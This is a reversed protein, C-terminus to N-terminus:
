KNHTLYITQDSLQTSDAAINSRLKKRQTPSQIGPSQWTDVEVPKFNELQQDPKRPNREFVVSPRRRKKANKNLM